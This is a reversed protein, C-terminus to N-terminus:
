ETLNSWVDEQNLFAQGAAYNVRERESVPRSAANGGLYSNMKNGFLTDPRLYQMMKLDTGWESFKKQCVLTFDDPEFGENIRARVLKKFTDTNKFNTNLTQNMNELIKQYPIIKRRDTNLSESGSLLEEEKETKYKEPKYAETETEVHTEQYRASIPSIDSHDVWPTLEQLLEVIEKEDMRLRFSIDDLSPLNGEMLDDESALLWFFTLLRYACASILMIDRQDLLERHLKM